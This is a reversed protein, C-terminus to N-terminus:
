CAAFDIHNLCVFEARVVCVYAAMACLPNGRSVGVTAIMILNIYLRADVVLYVKLMDFHGLYCGICVIKCSKISSYCIFYFTGSLLKKLQNRQCCNGVLLLSLQM